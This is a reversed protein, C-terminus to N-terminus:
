DWETEHTKASKIYLLVIFFYLFQHAFTFFLLKNLSEWLFQKIVYTDYWSRVIVTIIM